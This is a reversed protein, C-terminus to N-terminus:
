PKRGEAKAIAARVAEPADGLMNLIRARHGTVMGSGCWREILAFAREAKVLADNQDPAAAILNAITLRYEQPQEESILAVNRGECAITVKRGSLAPVVYWEAM